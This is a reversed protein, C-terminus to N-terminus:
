PNPALSLHLKYGNVDVDGSFGLHYKVDGDGTSGDDLFHDEFENFIEQYPKRLINALVNLRGRHAMGLVFEKVGLDPAKNVIADLLPILTESGELSFRKQGQFRSHLFREFLEAAHLMQLVHLKRPLSLNPRFRRPEIREQLWRRVKLDLVHRYEIGVTGCYTERLAALLERLTAQTMGRFASVDFARDLDNESLGFESLELLPHSAPPPPELPNLHALFHGLDRYAFILRVVNTQGPGAATGGLEFGEFFARWTEDVSAPDRRWRQYFEDILDLNARNAFSTRRM